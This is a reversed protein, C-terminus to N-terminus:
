DPDYVQPRPEGEATFCVGTSEGRPCQPCTGLRMSQCTEGALCDEDEECYVEEPEWWWRDSVNLARASARWPDEPPPSGGCAAVVLATLGIVGLTRPGLM